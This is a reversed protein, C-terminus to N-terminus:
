DEEEEEIEPQIEPSPRPLLPVASPRKRPTRPLGKVAKKLDSIAQPPFGADLFIGNVGAQHLNALGDATLPAGITVLLPKSIIAAFRYCVLLHELTLRPGKTDVLVADVPLDNISRAFGSELAPEVLVIKGIKGRDIVEFPAKLRCVLFDCGLEVFPGIDTNGEDEVMLGLPTEGLQHKWGEFTATDLGQTGLVGADINKGDLQKLEKRSLATLNVAMVM